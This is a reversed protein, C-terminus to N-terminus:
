REAVDAMVPDVVDILDDGRLSITHNFSGPTIFIRDLNLISPDFVVQVNEYFQYFPSVTGVECRTVRLTEEPKALSLKGVIEFHSQLKLKDIKMLLPVVVLFFEGDATLLISKLANRDNVGEVFSMAEASSNFKPHETIVHDINREKLLGTVLELHTM